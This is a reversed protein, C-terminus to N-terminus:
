HFASYIITLALRPAWRWCGEWDVMYMNKQMHGWIYFPILTHALYVISGLLPYSNENIDNSNAKNSAIHLVGKNM